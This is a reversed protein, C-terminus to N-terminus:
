YEPTGRGACGLFRRYDSVTQAVYDPPYPGSSKDGNWKTGLLFDLKWRVAAADPAPMELIRRILEGALDISDDTIDEDPMAELFSFRAVLGNWKARASPTHTPVMEPQLVNVTEARRGVLKPALSRASSM